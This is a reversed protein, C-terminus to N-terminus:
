IANIKTSEDDVCDIGEIISGQSSTVTDSAGDFSDMIDSAASNVSTSAPYQQAADEGDTDNQANGAEELVHNEALRISKSADEQLVAGQAITSCVIMLALFLCSIRSHNRKVRKKASEILRSSGNINLKRM